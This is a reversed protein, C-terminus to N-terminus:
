TLRSPRKWVSVIYDAARPSRYAVRDLCTLFGGAVIRPLRSLFAGWGPFAFGMSVGRAYELELREGCLQMLVAYTCEFTHEYPVPTDWFLRREPPIRGLARGLRYLIRSIRVNLSGYNVVGIVLRGDPKLLRAMERVGQRPDAWHDISADSLIRDFSQDRFPANEAIGRILTVRQGSRALRQRAHGLMSASPEIAFCRLGARSLRESCGADGCGVELSSGKAGALTIAVTLAHVRAHYFTADPGSPWNRLLADLDWDVNAEIRADEGNV